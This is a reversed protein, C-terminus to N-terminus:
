SKVRLGAPRALAGQRPDFTLFDKAGIVLAAAVHLIDLTRCGLTGAHAASLREAERHVDAPDCAPRQWHGSAIDGTFAALAATLEAPRIEQRFLRCRLATRLELEQWVTLPLPPPLARVLAEAHASNAEATYLKVLLSTDVYPASM